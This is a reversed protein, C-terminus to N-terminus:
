KTIIYLKKVHKQIHSALIKNLIKVDINMLISLELERKDAKPQNQYRPLATWISHIPFHKDEESNRFLKYHSPILKEQFIDM